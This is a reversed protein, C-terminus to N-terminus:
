VAKRFDFMFKYQYSSIVTSLEQLDSGVVGVLGLFLDEFNDVNTSEMSM